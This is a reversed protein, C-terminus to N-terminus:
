GTTMPTTPTLAGSRDADAFVGSETGSTNHKCSMEQAHEGGHSRGRPNGSLQTISPSSPYHVRAPRPSAGKQTKRISSHPLPNRDPATPTPKTMHATRSGTHGARTQEGTSLDPLYRADARDVRRRSLQQTPRRQRIRIGGLTLSAGANLGQCTMKDTPAPTRDSTSTLSPPAPVHLYRPPRRPHPSMARTPISTQPISGSPIVSGIGIDPPM